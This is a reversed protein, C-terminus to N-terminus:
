PIVVTQLGLGNNAAATDFAAKFEDLSFMGMVKMGGAPGIKLLGSELIKILDKVDEREYMWKGKMQLNQSTVARGPFTVDEWQGGMLSARGNQGLSLIGAKFHSSGASGPPSIDFFVDAPGGERLVKTESDVDGEITVTRVRPSLSRLHALADQNRGMAVVERAGMALAVPVASGGFKGTAPAIVVKEGTKLNVDRLGGFAVLMSSTVVLDEVKYGLGGEEPSGLLRKEDLPYCNELPMKAYEAYTSDRWEGHMLKRSGETLGESLGSLMRSSDDDRARIFTDIFVLQGPQLLAADAGAAAVRGIGSSGPVFPKPFPYNRKGNYVERSYSLVGAALVRVIVSGPTLVEMDLPEKASTLVLARHTKTLNPLQSGM